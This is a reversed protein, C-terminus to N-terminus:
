IKGRVLAERVPTRSMGFQKSLGAEDLPSAPALSLELISKPLAEYVIQSGRGLSLSAPQRRARANRRMPIPRQWPRLQALLTAAAMVRRVLQEGSSAVGSETCGGILGTFVTAGREYGCYEGRREVTAKFIKGLM